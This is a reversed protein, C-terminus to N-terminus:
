INQASCRYQDKTGLILNATQVQRGQVETTLRRPHWVKTRKCIHILHSNIEWSVAAQRATQRSKEDKSLGSDTVTSKYKLELILQFIVSVKDKM